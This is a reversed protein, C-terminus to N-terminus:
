ETRGLAEMLVVVSVYVRVVTTRRQPAIKARMMMTM